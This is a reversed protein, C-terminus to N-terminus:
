GFTDAVMNGLSEISFFSSQGKRSMSPDFKRFWNEMKTASESLKSPNEGTFLGEISKYLTPMVAAMNMSAHLAGYWKNLGPIAYPLIKILTKVAVGGISKDYGDSDFFDINNLASNEKTLIDELSVVKKDLLDRNGLLETFYQGNADTIFEGKKHEGMEGTIPNAQYGDKEYQAYVL